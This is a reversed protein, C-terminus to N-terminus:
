PIVEAELCYNNNEIKASVIKYKLGRDFLVEEQNQYKKYAVNKIYAAGKYGKLVKFKILVDRPSYDFDILSTSTFSKNILTYGTINSIDFIGKKIDQVIENSINLHELITKRQVIIDRTIECKQLATSIQEVQDKYKGLNEGKALKRNIQYASNGTYKKIAQKEQETLNELQKSSELKFKEINSSTRKELKKQKLSDWKEKNTYKMDQFNDFSGVEKRGLSAKYAEYQKKDVSKHKIKKEQLLWEPDNAVYTQYWEKYNMTAPVYYTKGNKGRATKQHGQETEDDFYPATTSRCRPHFPNATVGIQYDKIDFIKGDMERCIESTRLDFVSVIQFQKVGLREFSDKRSTSSIFASETRVLTETAHRSTELSKSMDRIIKQPAEGRIIGQTFRTELQYILQTKDKWIRDSFNRGDPTWPRALTKEIRNTDIKAFASGIGTGKQIEYATKYYGETYIEGLVATLSAIKSAELIEVQQRMQYQLAQLRTIRHSISANELEHVWKQNLANQQGYLIYDELEMQFAQRQQATLLQKAQQLSINNEVAFKMYFNNIDREIASMAGFYSRHAHKIYEEGKNLLGENLLAFREAWYEKSQM